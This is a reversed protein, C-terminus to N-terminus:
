TKSDGDEELAMTEPQLDSDREEDREHKLIPSRSRLQRMKMM